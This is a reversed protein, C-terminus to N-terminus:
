LNFHKKMELSTQNKFERLVQRVTVDSWELQKVKEQLSDFIVEKFSIHDKLERVTQRLTVDTWESIKEDKKKFISIHNWGWITRIKLNELFKDWLQMLENQYRRM